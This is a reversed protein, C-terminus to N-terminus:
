WHWSDIYGDYDVFVGYDTPHRYDTWDRFEEFLKKVKATEPNLPLSYIMEKLPEILEGYYCRKVAEAILLVDEWEPDESALKALAKLNHDVTERIYIDSADSIHSDRFGANRYDEAFETLMYRVAKECRITAMASLARVVPNVARVDENKTQGYKLILNKDYSLYFGRLLDFFTEKESMLEEYSLNRTNRMLADAKIDIAASIRQSSYSDPESIVEDALQEGSISDASFIKKMVFFAMDEDLGPLIEKLRDAVLINDSMADVAAVRMAFMANEDLIYDMWKGDFSTNDIMERIDSDVKMSYLGLFESKLFEHTHEDEIIEEIHEASVEDLKLKLANMHTLLVDPPIGVKLVDNMEDVIMDFSMECIDDLYEDPSDATLYRFVANDLRTSLLLILLLILVAALVRLKKHKM